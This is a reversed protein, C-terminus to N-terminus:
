WGRWDLCRGGACGFRVRQEYCFRFFRCCFRDVISVICDPVIGLPYLVLKTTRKRAKKIGVNGVVTM